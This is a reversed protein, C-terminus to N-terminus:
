NSKCSGCQSDEWESNSMEGWIKVPPKGFLQIYHQITKFFNRNNRIKDEDPTHHIFKGLKEKCFNEYLKTFLIFEHWAYDVVKSPSLKVEFKSVLYMFKIVEILLEDPTIDDTVVKELKCYLVPHEALLDASYSAITRTNIIETKM